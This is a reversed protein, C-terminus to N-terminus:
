AEESTHQQRNGGGDQSGVATGDVDLYGGPVEPESNAGFGFGDADLAALNTEQVSFQNAGRTSSEGSSSRQVSSRFSAVSARRKITEIIEVPRNLWALVAVAIFMTANIFILIASVADENVVATKYGASNNSDSASTQLMGGIALTLFIVGQALTQLANEARNGFPRYVADLVGFFAAFCIGTYVQLATGPAIFTVVSTLSLKYTLEM